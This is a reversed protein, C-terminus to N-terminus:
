DFCMLIKIFIKLFNIAIQKAGPYKKFSSQNHIWLVLVLSM